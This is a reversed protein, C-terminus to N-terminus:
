RAHHEGAVRVNEVGLRKEVLHEVARAVEYDSTSSLLKVARGSKLKLMLSHKYHVSGQKNGRSTEQTCYLQEIDDVSHTQSGPFFIPGHRVSLEGHRVGITTRNFLMVLVAYLLGLGVAVHGLPFVLFVIQMPGPMLGDFAVAMSYWGILFANWAICFPILFLVAWSFWRWSITLEDGHDEISLKAPIPVSVDEPPAERDSKLRPARQVVVPTGCFQCFIQERGEPAQLPADCNPCDLAITRM